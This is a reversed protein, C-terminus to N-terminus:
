QFCAPLGSLTLVDVALGPLMKLEFRIAGIDLTWYRPKGGCIM